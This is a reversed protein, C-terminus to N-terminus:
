PAALLKTGFPDCGSGAPLGPGRHSVSFQVRTHATEVAYRGAQVTAPNTDAAVAGTATLLLVAAAAGRLYTLNM